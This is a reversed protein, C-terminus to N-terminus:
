GNTQRVNGWLRKIWTNERPKTNKPAKGDLPGKEVDKVEVVARQKQGPKAAAVGAKKSGAIVGSRKRKDADSRENPDDRRGTLRRSM